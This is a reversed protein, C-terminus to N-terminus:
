SIVIRGAEVLEPGGKKRKEHYITYEAGSYLLGRDHNDFLIKVRCHDTLEDSDEGTRYFTMFLESIDGDGSQIRASYENKAFTRKRIYEAEPHWYVIAEKSDELWRINFDYIGDERPNKFGDFEEVRELSFFYGYNPVPYSQKERRAYGKVSLLYKGSPVVYRFGWYGTQGVMTHYVIEDCAFKDAHFSDWLSIASIWVSDKIEINFGGYELMQEWEDDFPMDYGELKILYEVRDIQVFPIWVGEKQSDLFLERDNQFLNLLLKTRGMKRERLFNQVVEVSFICIGYDEATLVRDM